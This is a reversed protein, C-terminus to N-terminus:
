TAWIAPHRDQWPLASEVQAALSLLPAEGARRGVLM